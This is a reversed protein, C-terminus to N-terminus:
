AFNAIFNHSIPPTQSQILILVLTICFKVVLLMREGVCVYEDIVDDCDDIVVMLLFLKSVWTM